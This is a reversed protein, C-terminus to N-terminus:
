IKYKDRPAWPAKGNFFPGDFLGSRRLMTREIMIAALEHNRAHEHRDLKRLEVARARHQDPTMLFKSKTPRDEMGAV